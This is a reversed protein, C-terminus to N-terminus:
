GRQGLQYAKPSIAFKRRFATSFAEPNRYGVQAAVQTITLNSQQLLHQAQEMRYDRLYGFVTKGFLHRFGQKLKYDNLGVEHALEMLSPPNRSRQVLIDRAYQVRELDNAKLPSRRPASLLNADLCVFQLALLELAKSELYLHQASGQYPCHLIQQLAQVMAPTIKGLSQHFRKTDQLMHQLPRPLADDTISLRRCYEVNASIMVMQIPQDSRWEETETLDPLHYLYNYGAIEEYDAEVEPVKPSKVRSGGSLYFKAVIPFTDEHQRTISLPQQLQVNCIDITVGGKLEFTCHDGQGIQQPMNLQYGLDSPQYVHEGQEHAQVMLNYLDIDTLAIAM